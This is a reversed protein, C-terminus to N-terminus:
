RSAPSIRALRDKLAKVPVGLRAAMKAIDGGCEDRCAIVEQDSIETISRLLPNRKRLEYYTTRSVGLIRAARSASGESRALAEAVQEDSIAPSAAAKAATTPRPAPPDSQRESVMAGLSGPLVAKTQGRSSVVIEGAVNELERVNGPWSHAAFAAVTSASLWPDDAHGALRDPEGYRKFAARLFHVLLVGLDERRYRLPPLAIRYRALRHFLAESFAGAAILRELSADTAALFRVDIKRVRTSGVPRVEGTDLVHLLSPQADLTLTGIEDLFLTGGDAAAFLGVKSVNAGTFSGREHGFLESAATSPAIVGMNLSLFPRGARPSAAVIAAALVGKGTGSEGRILVPVDVDAVQDIERRLDDVADSIGVLGHSGRAAARVPRALHLCLVIRRALTIIVGRELEGRPLVIRDRLRAGDVKVHADPNRALIEIRDHAQRISFSPELASVRVHGLPTGSTGHARDGFLPAVRSVDCNGGPLVASEGVRAVDPHWVITLTAVRLVRADGHATSEDGSNLTPSDLLYDAM